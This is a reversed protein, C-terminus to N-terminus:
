REITSAAVSRKTPGAVSSKLSSRSHTKIHYNLNGKHIFSKGCITCKYPKQGMHINVHYKLTGKQAFSKGCLTCKYPRLGTHTRLHKEFGSRFAFVKGCETCSFSQKGRSDYVPHVIPDAAAATWHVVDADPSLLNVENAQPGSSKSKNLERAPRAPRLIPLTLNEDSNIMQAKTDLSELVETKINSNICPEQGENLIEKSGSTSPDFLSSSRYPKCRSVDVTSSSQKELYDSALNRDAQNRDSWCKHVRLERSIQDDSLNPEDAIDEKGCIDLIKNLSVTSSEPVSNLIDHMKENFIDALQDQQTNEFTSRKFLNHHVVTTILLQKLEMVEKIIENRFSSLADLIRNEQFVDFGRTKVSNDFLSSM